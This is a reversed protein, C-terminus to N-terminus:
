SEFSAMWCKLVHFKLFINRSKHTMKARRSGSGSGSESDPDFSGISDPDLGSGSGCGQKFNTGGAPNHTERKGDYSTIDMHKGYLVRQERVVKELAAFL